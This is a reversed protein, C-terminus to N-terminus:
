EQEVFVSVTDILPHAQILLPVSAFLKASLACITLGPDIRYAM